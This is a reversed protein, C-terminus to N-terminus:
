QGSAMIEREFFGVTLSVATAQGVTLLATLVAETSTYQMMGLGVCSGVEAVIRAKLAGTGHKKM